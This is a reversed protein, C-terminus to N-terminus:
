MFIKASTPIFQQDDESFVLFTKNTKLNGNLLSDTTWWPNLRTSNFERTLRLLTRENDAVIIYNPVTTADPYYRLYAKTCLLSTVNAIQERIYAPSDEERFADILFYRTEDAKQIEFDCTVSFGKTKGGSKIIYEPQTRFYVLEQKSAELVNLYWKTACLERSIMMSSRCMSTEDWSFIPINEYNHLIAAAGQAPCYFEQADEPVVPLISPQEESSLFFSNLITEERLEKLHSEILVPAVKGDKYFYRQIDCFQVIQHFTAFHRNFLFKILEISANTLEGDIKKQILDIKKPLLIYKHYFVQSLRSPIAGYQEMKKFYSM